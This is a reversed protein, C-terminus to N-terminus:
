ALVKKNAQKMLLDFMKSAKCEADKGHKSLEGKVLLTTFYAGRYNKLFLKRLMGYKGPLVGMDNKRKLGPYLIGDIEKYEINNM